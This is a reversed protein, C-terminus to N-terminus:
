KPTNTRPYVVLFREGAKVESDTMCIAEVLRVNYNRYNKCFGLWNMCEDMLEDMLKDMLGDMWDIM